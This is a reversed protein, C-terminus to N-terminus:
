KKLSDILAIIEVILKLSVKVVNEIKEQPIDFSGVITLIEVKEEDNLESMETAIEGVGKFADGVGSLAAILPLADEIGLGNELSVGLVQGLNLVFSLAKKTKEVSAM